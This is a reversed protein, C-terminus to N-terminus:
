LLMAGPGLALRRGCYKPDSSYVCPEGKFQSLYFDVTHFVLGGSDHLRSFLTEINPKRIASIESM